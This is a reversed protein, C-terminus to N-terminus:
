NHKKSKIRKFISNFMYILDVKIVGFFLKIFLLFNNKFSDTKDQFFEKKIKNQAEPTVWTSILDFLKNEDNIKMLNNLLDFDLHKRHSNLYWTNFSNKNVSYLKKIFWNFIIMLFGLIYGLILYQFFNNVFFYFILTTSIIILLTRYLPAIFYSDFIIDKKAWRNKFPKLAGFMVFVRTIPLAVFIVLLMHGITSLVVSFGLITTIIKIIFEM